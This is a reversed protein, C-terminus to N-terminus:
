SQRGSQYVANSKESRGNDCTNVLATPFIVPIDRAASNDHLQALTEFGVMDAMMLNPKPLNGTVRLGTAGPTAVLVRYKPRLMERLASLSEPADDIILTSIDTEGTM